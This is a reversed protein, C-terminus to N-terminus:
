WPGEMGREERMRPRTEPSMLLRPLPKRAEGQYQASLCFPRKRSLVIAEFKFLKM